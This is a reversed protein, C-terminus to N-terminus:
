ARRRSFFRDLILCVGFCLGGFLTNVAGSTEDPRVGTAGWVIQNILLALATGLLVTWGLALLPRRLLRRWLLYIGWLWVVSLAAIGFAWPFRRLSIIQGLFPLITISLIVLFDRAPRKSRLLPYCLAWGFAVCKVALLIHANGGTAACVILLALAALFCNASLAVFLWWRWGSNKKRAAEAYRVTDLVVDEVEPPVPPAPPPAEDKRGALLETVSVQLADALPRLLTIDPYSLCREWKSVAKDTIDLKDALQQQTLGLELRRDRIFLGIQNEEM